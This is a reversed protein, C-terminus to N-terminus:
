DDLGLARGEALLTPWEAQSAPLKELIRKLKKRWQDVDYASTKPPAAMEAPDAAPVHRPFEPPAGGGALGWAELLRGRDERATVPQGQETGVMRRLSDFFAM